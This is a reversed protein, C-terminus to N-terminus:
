ESLTRAYRRGSREFGVREYFAHADSRRDASTLFLLECGRLRAEDELARVLARGVGRGHQAEDVVLAGIKAVPRERELSPTVQLHALGAVRGDVDAVLVRDGVVALRELRRVVAGAETPYGLQGLLRAIADADAARADRLTLDV